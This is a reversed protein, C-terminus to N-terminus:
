LIYSINSQEYRKLLGVAMSINFHPSVSQAFFIWNWQLLRLSHKETALIIMIVCYNTIVIHQGVRIRENTQLIDFYFLDAVRQVLFQLM